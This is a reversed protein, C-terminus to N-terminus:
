ESPKENSGKPAILAIDGFLQQGIAAIKFEM